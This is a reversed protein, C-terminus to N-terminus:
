RFFVFVMLSNAGMSICMLVTFLIVTTWALHRSLVPLDWYDEPVYKMYYPYNEM